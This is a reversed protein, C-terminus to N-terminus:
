LYIIICYVSQIVSMSAIEIGTINLTSGINILYNVTNLLYDLLKLPIIVTYISFFSIPLIAFAFIIIGSFLPVILLNFVIGTVSIYNFYYSMIPLTFIQVFVYLIITNLIENEINLRVKIIQNYFVLCLAAMYSLQFGVDFLYYPNIILLILASVILSNISNYKRYLAESGFLFNFM